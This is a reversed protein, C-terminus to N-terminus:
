LQRYVNAHDTKKKKSRRAKKAKVKSEDEMEDVKRKKKVSLPNPGKPGKRKRIQREAKEDKKVKKLMEKEHDTILRQADMKESARVSKISPKELVIVNHNVHMLPVGAMSRLKERLEPDQTAIFLGNKNNRKLLSSICMSASVAKEHGCSWKEFKEAIVMAGHLKPGLLIGEAKICDTIFLKFEGNLYHTLQEKIQVRNQLAEQCFTLDVILQYPQHIQFKNRYFSLYKDCHKRRKLKM